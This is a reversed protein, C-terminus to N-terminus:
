QPRTYTLMRVLDKLRQTELESRRAIPLGRKGTTKTKVLMFTAQQVRDILSEKRLDFQNRVAAAEESKGCFETSIEGLDNVIRKRLKHGPLDM